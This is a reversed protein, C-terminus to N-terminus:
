KRAAELAERFNPTLWSWGIWGLTLVGGHRERKMGFKFAPRISYRLVFAVTWGFLTVRRTFRPPGTRVKIAKGDKDATSVTFGRFRGLKAQRRRAAKTPM